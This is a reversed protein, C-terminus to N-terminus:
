DDSQRTFIELYTDLVRQGRDDVNLFQIGTTFGDPSPECHIVKGRIEVMNEEFGLSILMIQGAKFRTKTELCIGQESVNLTRGMGRELPTGDKDAAIYELLNLSRFRKTARKEEYGM